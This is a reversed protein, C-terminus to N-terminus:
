EVHVSHSNINAICSRSPIPAQFFQVPTAANLMPENVTAAPVGSSYERIMNM